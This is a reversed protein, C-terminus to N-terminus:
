SICNTGDLSSTPTTANMPNEFLQLVEVGAISAPYLSTPTTYAEIFVNDEYPGYPSSSYLQYATYLAKVSNFIDIGSVLLYGNSSLNFVRLGPADVRPDLEVFWFAMYYMHKGTVTSATLM